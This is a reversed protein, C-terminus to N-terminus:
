RSIIVKRVSTSSDSELKIFYVGNPINSVSLQLEDSGLLSVEKIIRGYIDSIAVNHKLSSSTSPKLRITLADSAPNPYVSFLTEQSTIQPNNISVNDSFLADIMWSFKWDNRPHLDDGVLMGNPNGGWISFVGPTDVETCKLKIWLSKTGDLPIPNSLNHTHFTFDYALTDFFTDEYLIEDPTDTGSLITLQHTAQKRGHLRIANLTSGAKIASADIKIGWISDTGLGDPINAARNMSNDTTYYRITDAMLPKFQATFSIEGGTAVTSRPNYRCGDSWQVFRTHENSPIATLVITDGFNYTGGGTVTGDGNSAGDIGEVGTNVVTTAMGFDDYPTIGITATAFLNFNYGSPNLETILFSGDGNGGWGWNVHFMGDRSRYGDIVFAHGSQIEDYGAYLIPRDNKLEELMLDKWEADNYDCRFATWIYPSYKFNYKLANESAADGGYGYAATKGGSGNPSYNMHVAVGCHYILTAVADIKAESSSYGISKPMSDWVYTGYDVALTGYLKHTYEGHGYGEAPHNFYKMIQATATATCGSVALKGEATDYPCFKNYLPSQNWTTKLMAQINIKPGNINIAETDGDVLRQWKERAEQTSTLNPHARNFRITSCYGELWLRLNDPLNDFSIPNELSYGLVPETNKDNSLIVFGNGNVSFAYLEPFPCDIAKIEDPSVDNAKHADNTIVLSRVLTTAAQYAAERSVSYDQAFVAFPHFAAFCTIALLYRLKTMNNHNITQQKTNTSKISNFFLYFRNSKIM